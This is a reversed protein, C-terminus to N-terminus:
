RVRNTPSQENRRRAIQAFATLIDNILFKPLKLGDDFLLRVIAWYCTLRDRIGLHRARTVASFYSGLRRWSPFVVKGGRDPAFWAERPHSFRLSGKHLRRVSRNDHERLYFESSGAEVARGYLMVEAVLNRDSGTFPGHLSTAKLTSSRFLGFALPATSTRAAARFRVAPSASRFEQPFHIEELKQGTADVRIPRGVAVVAGPDSELANVGDSIFDLSSYDDHANWAFYEGRSERFARNYNEAAGINEIQTISVIRDDKGAHRAIIDPTGDTSANDSVIIELKEYRQARAAELAEDLFDEGQFVPIGISALPRKAEVEAEEGKESQM